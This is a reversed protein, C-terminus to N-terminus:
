KAKAPEANAPEAAALRLSGEAGAPLGRQVRGLTTLLVVMAVPFVAFVFFTGKASLGSDLLRGALLPGLMAGLKSVSAAWGGGSARISPRYFINSISIVGGNGGIILINAVLLALIYGVTGLPAFGIVLLTPV